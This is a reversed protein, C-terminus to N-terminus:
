QFYIKSARWVSDDEHVKKLWYWWEAGWFYARDFGVRKAYEANKILKDSDMTKYHDEIPMNLPGTPFWPEAQLEAIFSTDTSRGWAYAKVRYFSAPMFFYEFYGIYKNWTTRYLTTGFM